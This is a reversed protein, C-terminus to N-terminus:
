EPPTKVVAAISAPLMTADDPKESATALLRFHGIIHQAYKSSHDLTFTLTADPKPTLPAALTYVVHHSKGTEPVIAWGGDPKPNISDEPPFGAQNFDAKASAIAVPADNGPVALTFHSLVLNGNEARGPGKGGVASAELRLHHTPSALSKTTIPDKDTAPMPCEGHLSG